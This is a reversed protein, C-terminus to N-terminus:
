IGELDEALDSFDVLVGNRQDEWKSSDWIELHDELGILTMEQEIGAYERLGSPILVRGSGDIELETAMSLLVRRFDRTKKKFSSLDKLKLMLDEWRNIPYVAICRDIGITAVVSSGLEGRFRSPLVTRGKSDLKHNYSGVLM